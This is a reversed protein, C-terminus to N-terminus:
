LCEQRIQLPYFLHVLEDDVEESLAEQDFHVLMQLTEHLLVAIEM